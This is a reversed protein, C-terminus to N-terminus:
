PGRKEFTDSPLACSADAGTLASGLIERWLAVVNEAAGTATQNTNAVGCVSLTLGATDITPLKELAGKRDRRSIIGLRAAISIQASELLDTHASLLRLSVQEGHQSIEISRARISESARLLGQYLPTRRSPKIAAGCAAEMGKLWADQAKLTGAGDIPAFLKAQPQEYRRWPVLLVPEDSILGGTQFVAADLRRVGPLRLYTALRARLELCRQDSATSTSADLLVVAVAVKKIPREPARRTCGPVVGLALLGAAAGRVLPPSLSPAIKM